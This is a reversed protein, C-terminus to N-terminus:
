FMSHIARTGTATDQGGTAQNQSQKDSNQCKSKLIDAAIGNHGVKELATVLTEWTPEGSRQLVDDTRNLWAAVMEELTNGM